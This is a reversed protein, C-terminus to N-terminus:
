KPVVQYGKYDVEASPGGSEEIHRYSKIKFNEDLTVIWGDKRANAVFDKAQQRREAEKAKEAQREQIVSNYVLSRPDKPENKIENTRGLEEALQRTRPDDSFNVIPESDKLQKERVIQDSAGDHSKLNAVLTKIREYEIKDSVSRLHENIADLENNKRISSFDTQGENLNLRDEYVVYGCFFISSVLFFIGILRIFFNDEKKSKKTNM